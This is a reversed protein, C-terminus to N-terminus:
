PRDASEVRPARKVTPRDPAPFDDLVAQRQARDTLREARVSATRIPRARGHGEEDWLERALHVARETLPGAGEQAAPLTRLRQSRSFDAWRFGVGVAAYRVGEAELSGALSAALERVASEVSPWDALDVPFTRDTSRSRPGSATMPGEVPHGRALSVLERGFEGIWGAVEAPRRAALDGITRVGHAGLLAETKPGVGPISRVPLPALFEAVAEPPVVVIGGPKARDTAIKAVSRSMSCGISAPLGLTERLDRQVREAFARVAAPTSAEVAVAAEDISFPVVEPAHRRLLARVEGSVREYKPFDPPIWVAEPCLGAAVRVPLASRVGFARAEYSASLVVGRSPRDSPPPGVIVPRGALEPRDRLECAVYYADLDVYVIWRPPGPDVPAPAPWAPGSPDTAESM